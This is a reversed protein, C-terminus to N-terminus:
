PTEGLGRNLLERVYPTAPARRLIEPKAEQQIQGDKMVGVREGLLFAERLDHTVLLTTKGYRRNLSLLEQQLDSRTLPDLAGFPEDLLIVEPDAIFARVLAVRQKQGGSLQAPYRNGYTELPLGVAKFLRGAAEEQASRKWRLLSPVLCANQLITWHPLLGGEQSVYGIRRRLEVPDVAEVPKGQVRVTGEEPVVLRNFLKLLTSKGAGSEGVLAFHEGKRLSLSVGRLVPTGSYSKSVSSAELISKM